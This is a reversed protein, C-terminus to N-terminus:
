LHTHQHPPSDELINKKKRRGGQSEQGVGVGFLYVFCLDHTSEPIAGAPKFGPKARVGPCTAECNQRETEQNTVHPHACNRGWLITIFKLDTLVHFVSLTSPVTDTNTVM